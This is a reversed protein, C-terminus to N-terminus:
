LTYCTTADSYDRPDSAPCTFEVNAPCKRVTDFCTDRCELQTDSPNDGTCKKFITSCAWRKYSALCDDCTWLKLDRCNSVVLKLHLNDVVCKAYRDEVKGLPLGTNTQLRYKGAGLDAFNCFSPEIQQTQGTAPNTYLFSTARVDVSSCVHTNNDCVENYASFDYDGDEKVLPQFTCQAPQFATCDHALTSSFTSAESWVMGCLGLFTLAFTLVAPRGLLGVLGLFSTRPGRM